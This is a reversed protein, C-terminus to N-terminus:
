RSATTRPPDPRAPVPLVKGSMWIGAAFAAIGLADLWPPQFGEASMNGSYGPIQLGLVHILLPGLGNHLAHMALAPRLSGTRLTWWAFLIGLVLGSPFQWPNIHILAFMVSSAAIATPVRYRLVFGQLLAGRFFLEETVPAVLVLLALSSLGEGSLQAMVEVVWDPPPFVARLLNDVESGLFQWGLTTLTVAAWVRGAVPGSPFIQRPPRGSLLWALWLAVGFAFINGVATWLAGDQAAGTVQMVVGLVIGTFLQLALILLLLGVAHLISPFPRSAMAHREAAM